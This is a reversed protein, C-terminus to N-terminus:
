RRPLYVTHRELDDLLDAPLDLALELDHASAFGGLEDRARVIRQATAEDMGPVALLAPVPAHNVDVVGGHDTGGLDPRGVGMELALVPEERALRRAREREAIRRRAAEEADVPGRGGAVRRVWGPRAAFAHTIAALWLGIVAFGGLPDDEVDLRATAYAFEAAVLATWLAAYAGYRRGGGARAAIAFAFPTFWGFPLLSLAAWAGIPGRGRRRRRRSM